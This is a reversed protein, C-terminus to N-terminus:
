RTLFGETGRSLSLVGSETWKLLWNKMQANTAKWHCLWQSSLAM